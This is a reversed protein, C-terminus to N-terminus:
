VLLVVKTEKKLKYKLKETERTSKSPPKRRGVEYSSVLLVCYKFVWCLLLVTNNMIGVMVVFCLM